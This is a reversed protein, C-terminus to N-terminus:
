PLGGGWVTMATPKVRSSSSRIKADQAQAALAERTGVSDDVFHNAGARFDPDTAVHVAAPRDEPLVELVVASTAGADPEPSVYQYYRSGYHNREGCM